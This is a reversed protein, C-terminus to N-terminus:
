WDSTLSWLKKKRELSNDQECSGFLLNLLNVWALEHSKKDKKKLSKKKWNRGKINNKKISIQSEHNKKKKYILYYHDWSGFWSNLLNNLNACNL